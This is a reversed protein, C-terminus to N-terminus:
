RLRNREKLKSILTELNQFSIRFNEIIQTHEEIKAKMEALDKETAITTWGSEQKEEKKKTM